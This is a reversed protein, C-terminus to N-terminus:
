AAPLAKVKEYAGEPITRDAATSITGWVSSDFLGQVLEFGGSKKCSVATCEIPVMLTDGAKRSRAGSSRKIQVIAMLTIITSGSVSEAQVMLYKPDSTGSSAGGIKVGNESTKENKTVGGGGGQTRPAAIDLFALVDLDNSAIKVTPIGAEDYTVDSTEVIVENTTDDKLHLAVDTLTPIAIDVGTTKNVIGTHDDKMRFFAINAHGGWSAPTSSM